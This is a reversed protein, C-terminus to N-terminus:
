ERVVVLASETELMEGEGAYTREREVAFEEPELIEGAARLRDGDLEFEGTEIAAEIDGVTGGYKPGVTEYDLNVDRIETTTEPEEALVDLNRVHAVERIADEFGAVDGHVAVEDLEANLALQHETKYKRLASVVAMSTEGAALDAEYGAPEPWDATHVSEDGYMTRWLEETVHPLLPAFLKLFTRHASTLAFDRSRSAERQKAIELYDDCFTNWFFSRLRDRAKSFEYADMHATVDAVVEDLEALLWRDIAALDDPDGSDTTGGPGGSGSGSALDAVLKSANWLKTLLKDGTRLDKESYPFDDGVATGAAWYRVADVPYDALAEEPAVVNGKSSSMKERNEDLVHGNIMVADFPAEGTHEVCKVVTHFLWFSIIDHGQPRLDFQYLEPNAMETEGTAEDYDWGANILPTLSSTAWTDFVDEEPVFEDHGCEPCADVPPDDALPDVPLDARDAVVETGCDGCYWVPFPIGSDRQRSICWDWELGEIWHEYRTFMKEPYWDMERGAELYAEKRDLLKVYWQETVLFEVDTGCREHVNVTHTIPRRDRLHGESELDAVIAERAEETSMGEYPGALDTMTGSEDIAVRLPLDHAQYWEIDTQDGFTCSMVAGTGTELDVREDAIVPVEHGFLPVEATEGALHAHDEDDPHVFMAVCAPVLEPRTTSIVLEGDTSTLPFAIDNFHADREADETEVQSIATECEPCWIAPAERRYERGDEYLEVFSLQSVRQVRPEITKYTRSWDISVGLGQMKETFDAEYERCVERCKEQFKRRSFDQHRVGLDRETLRESAIGNDDYGFPFFVEARSMRRFRAAFDQLTHGYLHGMHLDGSVTPPPTDISFVTNPDTEPDGEYAYTEDEVWHQQWKQEVGRPDYEGTPKSDTAEPRSEGTTQSQDATM